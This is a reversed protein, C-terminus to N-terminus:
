EYVKELLKPIAELFTKARADWTHHQLVLERGKKALAARKVDDKLYEKLVQNLEKPRSRDYLLISERDKFQDAIYPTDLTLVASGAALGTFIREHGGYKIEPVSNLLIKSRKIREIAEPYEIPDHLRINANDKFYNFWDLSGTRRGYVDVNVGEISKLLEVRCRGGVYACLEDLFEVYNLTTPDLSSDSQLAASYSQSFAELYTLPRVSLTLEAAEMLAKYITKPYTARWRSEIEQFDILTNLMLVDHLPPQKSPEVQKGTAHPLFLTQNFGTNEFVQCFSFDICGIINYRSNILPFFHQPPDVLFAFHPLKLMDCLFRGQEDPLVGNFSLTLDPPDQTLAWLFSGPDDYDAKLWDVEVGQDRLAQSFEAAFTSVVGYQNELPAFVAIKQISM